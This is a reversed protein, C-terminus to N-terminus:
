WWGYRYGIFGLVTGVLVLAIGLTVGNLASVRRRRKEEGGWRLVVGLMLGTVLLGLAVLTVTGGGPGPAPTM